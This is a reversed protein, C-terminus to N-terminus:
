SRTANFLASSQPLTWSAVQSVKMFHTSTCVPGWTFKWTVFLSRANSVREIEEHDEYGEHYCWDRWVDADRHCRALLVVHPVRRPVATAPGANETIWLQTVSGPIPLTKM